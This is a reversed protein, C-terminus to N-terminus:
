AHAEVVQCVVARGRRPGGVPAVHALVPGGVGPAVTIDLDGDVLAVRVPLERGDVLSVARVGLSDATMAPSTHRLARGACGRWVRGLADSVAGARGAAAPPQVSGVARDLPRVRVRLEADS